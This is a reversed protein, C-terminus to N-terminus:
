CATCFLYHFDFGGPGLSPISQLAPGGGQQSHGVTTVETEGLRETWCYFTKLQYGPPYKKEQHSGSRWDKCYTAGELQEFEVFCLYSQPPCKLGQQRTSGLLGQEVGHHVRGRGCERGRGSEGGHGRM